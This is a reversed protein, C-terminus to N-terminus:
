GGAAASTALPGGARAPVPDGATIFTTALSVWRGGETFALGRERLEYLWHMLEGPDWARDAGALRRLLAAPSRGHELERWAALERPAELLHDAAPWGARRDRIVIIGDAAVQRLSSAPYHRIWTEVAQQLPAAQEETLGRPPTDFLYVMDQLQQESLDYVYRYPEAPTREPFGLAPNEFYPSFRDMEIRATSSPPQLHVLAPLQALVPAYAAEQEGPFGYLWNWTVTLGASQFDRMTRVNHVARVGKDMRDLVDDVFSEVGPQVHRVGSAALVGVQEATLNAKLEYYVSLDWGRGALRPLADRLYGPELINDAMMVNLVKSRRVLDSLEDVFAAAPKARFAMSTGNLGCFTCQHVQGWWCGRSSEVVLEPGLHSSVPSAEFVASWDDFDPKVIRAPPVLRAPSNVRQRGDADRWCLGPVAGLAGTDEADFARLLHPFTEDAEGRLVLDVFGFERHLAIGMPGDCNGGGFLITIDRRRQKLRRAVALSPVNQMFTTSFGVLEPDSAILEDVVVDCFAGAYERMTSVSRMPIGQRAAYAAMGGAGFGPRNLAGAFVWDGLCHAFGIDSVAMYDYPTLRGDSRELLFEAFRIGGYYGSPVPLGNEACAGRLVGIALSSRAVAHWPMSVLVTRPPRGPPSSVREPAQRTM